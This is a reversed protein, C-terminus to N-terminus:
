LVGAHQGLKRLRDEVLARHELAVCHQIKWGGFNVVSLVGKPDPKGGKIISAAALLIQIIEWPPTLLM